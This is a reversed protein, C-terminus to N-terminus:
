NVYHTKYIPKVNILIFHTHLIDNNYKFFKFSLVIYEGYSIYVNTFIYFIIQIMFYIRKMESSYLNAADYNVKV